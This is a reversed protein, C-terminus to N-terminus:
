TTRSLLEIFNIIRKGKFKNDSSYNHSPASHGDVLSLCCSEARWSKEAAQSYLGSAENAVEAVPRVLVLSTKTQLLLQVSKRLAFQQVQGGKVKTTACFQELARPGKM